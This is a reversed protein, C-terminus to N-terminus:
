KKSLNTVIAYADCVEQEGSNKGIKNSKQDNKNSILLDNHSDPVYCSYKQTKMESSHRTQTHTEVEMFNCTVM